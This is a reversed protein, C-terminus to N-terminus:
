VFEWYYGGSTKREGRCVKAISSKCIGTQKSAESISNFEIVKDEEINNCLVKKKRKDEDVRFPEKYEYNWYFDKYISNVSLCTRSIDQKKANVVKSANQLCDHKNILRGTSIDYQYIYKKFGGGSDSNYGEEKSNYKIIYQKEKKALENRSNATDIQKWSFAWAGYTSIAIHFKNNEERKARELHNQKRQKLSNMTAGIYVEGNLINEAKYIIFNSEMSIMRM